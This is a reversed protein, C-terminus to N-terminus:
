EMTRRFVCIGERALAPAVVSTAIDADGIDLDVRVSILMSLETEWNKALAFWNGLRQGEDGDAMVVAVDLDSDPRHNGRARSGFVWVEKIQPVSRAWEAIRPFWILLEPDM